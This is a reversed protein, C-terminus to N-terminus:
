RPAEPLRLPAKRRYGCAWALSDIPLAVLDLALDFPLSLLGTIFFYGPGAAMGMMEGGEGTVKSIFVLDFAVAQLPYAGVLHPSGRTFM